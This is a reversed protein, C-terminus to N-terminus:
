RWGTADSWARLVQTRRPVAVESAVQIAQDGFAKRLTAFAMSTSVAREDSFSGELPRQTRVIRELRSVEVRIESVDDEIKPMLLRIAVEAARARAIPKTFIRRRTMRRGSRLECALEVEVGFRDRGSLQAELRKAASLIMRSLQEEDSADGPEQVIVLARDEPYVARVAEFPGGIVADRIRAARVGFQPALIRPSLTAVEGISRYGLFRLRARDDPEIPELAALSLPALFADPREWIAALRSEAAARETPPELDAALRAV